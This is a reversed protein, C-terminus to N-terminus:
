GKSPNFYKLSVRKSFGTVIVSHAPGTSPIPTRIDQLRAGFTLNRTVAKSIESEDLAHPTLEPYFYPSGLGDVIFLIASEPRHINNLTIEAAQAATVSFTFVLIIILLINKMVIKMIDPSLLGIM